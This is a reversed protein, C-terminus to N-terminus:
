QAAGPARAGCEILARGSVIPLTAAELCLGSSPLTESPIMVTRRGGLDGAAIHRTGAPIRALRRSM